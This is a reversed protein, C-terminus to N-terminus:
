HALRTGVYIVLGCLAVAVSGFLCGSAHDLRWRLGYRQDMAGLWYFLLFVGCLLLWIPMM